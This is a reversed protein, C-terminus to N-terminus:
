QRVSDIRDGAESADSPLLDGRLTPEARGSHKLLWVASENWESEPYEEGLRRFARGAIAVEGYEESHIFGKMFLADDAFEHEPYNEILSEYYNLRSRPDRSEGALRYLQEASRTERTDYDGFLQVGASRDLEKLRSAFADGAVLPRLDREVRDRVQDLSQQSGPEMASIRVIHWNDGIRVPESTGRGGMSFAFDTFEKNFGMGLVYGGPNFWGLVGGDKRTAEDESYELAVTGFPKGAALAAAAEDIREKTKTQVHYGLVRGLSRYNEANLDYYEVVREEPIELHEKFYYEYYAKYLISRSAMDLRWEIERQHQFGESKAQDYVLTEEILRALLRGEWGEGTYRARESPSLNEHRYDFYAQTIQTEGVRAIVPSFDAEVELMASTESKKSEAGGCGLGIVSLATLLICIGPIRLSWSKV